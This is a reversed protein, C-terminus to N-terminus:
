VEMGAAIEAAPTADPFSEFFEAIVARRASTGSIAEPHCRVIGACEFAPAEPHTQRLFTRVSARLGIMRDPDAFITGEAAADLRKLASM